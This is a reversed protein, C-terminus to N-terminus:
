NRYSSLPELITKGEYGLAWVAIGGLSNQKALEVKYQTAKKDPYFIQYYTGTEQDKYIIQSEKDISDFKASCTACAALLNEARANSITFGTGPIVASRPVSGITEWGYGYLPIGLILKKPPVIKLAAEVAAQTDFESITGAGGEPAVPGTVYSGAYHYDYAMLIVKNVLPTLTAPDCLNTKKIFASASIDISLSKVQKTNLNKKVAQVFRTFKARAEPSADKVQEIDLNLDTFGHKEMIPTVKEILNKASKEPNELMESIKGDDGSFVALSLNVGEKLASKLFSDIKGSNLALNGPESEGPNTYKQITGDGDITLSFYTLTTIYKTYNNQARGVLWYPLFGIVERHPIIINIPSVNEGSIKPLLYNRITLFGAFILTLLMLVILVTKGKM